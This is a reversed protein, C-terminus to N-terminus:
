SQSDEVEITRDQTLDSTCWKRSFELITWGEVEEANELMWNENEDIAPLAEETAYRDQM